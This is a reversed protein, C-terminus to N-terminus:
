KKLQSDCGGVDSLRKEVSREAESFPLRALRAQIQNQHGLSVLIAM